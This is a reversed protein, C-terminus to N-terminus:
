RLLLAADGAKTRVFLATRGGVRVAHLPTCGRGALQEIGYIRLPDVIWLERSRVSVELAPASAGSRESMAQQVEPAIEWDDLHYPTGDAVIRLGSADKWAIAEGHCYGFSPDERRGPELPAPGSRLIRGWAGERFTYVFNDNGWGRHDSFPSELICVLTGDLELELRFERRAGTGGTAQVPFELPLKWSEVTATELDLAALGFEDHDTRWENGPSRKVIRHWAFWAKSGVVLVRGAAMCPIEVRVAKSLDVGDAPTAPSRGLRRLAERVGDDIPLRELADAARDNGIEGLREVVVPRLELDDLAAILAPIDRILCAARARIHLEPDKLLAALATKDRCRRVFPRLTVHDLVRILRLLVDERRLHKLLFHCDGPNAVIADCLAAVVTPSPVRALTEGAAERVSYDGTKLTGILIPVLSELRAPFGAMATCAAAAIHDPGESLRVLTPLVSDARTGIRGLALIFHEVGYDKHRRAIALLRPVAVDAAPGFAAISDAAAERVLEERHGLADVLVPIAISAFPKADALARVVGLHARWERCRFGDLLARLTSEREIPVACLRDYLPGPSTGADFADLVKRIKQTAEM